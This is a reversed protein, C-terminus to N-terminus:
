RAWVLCNSNMKSMTNNMDSDITYRLKKRLRETITRIYKRDESIKHHAVLSTEPVSIYITVSTCTIYIHSGFNYQHVNIFVHVNLSVSPPAVPPHWYWKIGYM